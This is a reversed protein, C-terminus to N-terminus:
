GRRFEAAGEGTTPPATLRRGLAEVLEEAGGAGPFEVALSAVFEAHPRGRRYDPERPPHALCREMLGTDPEVLLTASYFLLERTRYICAGGIKREGLALDSIGRQQVGSVGAQELGAILWGTLRAFHGLNGAFGTSPLVVSVIVNGPDLVVACGGGHRRLVTVRDELCAAINLETEPRSGRGLVVQVGEPRYLRHRPRRDAMTAEILPDDLDYVGISLGAARERPKRSM